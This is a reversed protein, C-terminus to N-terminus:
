KVMYPIYFHTDLETRLQVVGIHRDERATIMVKVVLHERTSRVRKLEASHCVM